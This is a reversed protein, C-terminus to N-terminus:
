TDTRLLFMKILVLFKNKLFAFFNDILDYSDHVWCNIWAFSYSTKTVQNKFLLEFICSTKGEWVIKVSKINCKACLEYQFVLDAILNIFSICTLNRNKSLTTTCIFLPLKLVWNFLNWIVTWEKSSYSLRLENVQRRFLM